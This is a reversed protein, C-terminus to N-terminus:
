TGFALVLSGKHTMDERDTRYKWTHQYYLGAWLHHDGRRATRSPLIIEGGYRLQTQLEDYMDSDTDTVRFIARQFNVQSYLRVYRFLTLSFEQQALPTSFTRFSYSGPYTRTSGDNYFIAADNYTSSEMEAFVPALRTEAHFEFYKLFPLFVGVGVYPCIIAIKRNSVSTDYRKTTARIGDTDLNHFQTMVGLWLLCLPTQATASSDGFYRMLPDLQFKISQNKSTLHIRGTALTGSEETETASQYKVQLASAYKDNWNYQLRGFVTSGHAQPETGFDITLPYKDMLFNGMVNIFRGMTSEDEDEPLPNFVSSAIQVLSKKKQEGDKDAEDSEANKHAADTESANGHATENKQSADSSDATDKQAISKQATDKQSADSEQGACPLLVLASLILIFVSLKRSM